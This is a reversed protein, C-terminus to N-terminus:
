QAPAPPGSRPESSLEGRQEFRVTPLCQPHERALFALLGERLKCRLDFAKGSDRASVLVRVQMTKEGADTVQKMNKPSASAFVDAPAGQMIQEALGSSPGFSFTM